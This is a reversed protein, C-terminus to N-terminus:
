HALAPALARWEPSGRLRKIELWIAEVYRQDADHFARNFALYSPRSLLPQPLIELKDRFAARALLEQAVGSQIVALDGKRALLKLLTQEELASGDDGPVGLAALAERVAVIGAPYLVPGALHTFRGGDWDAESGVRRVVVHSIRALERSADIGLPDMPFAYDPLFSLNGIVPLAAAYTGTRLGQLCRRWPVAIFQVLDGQREVAKRVLWQAQGEHDLFFLPPFPRDGMCVALTRAACPSAAGAMVSAFLLIRFLRM